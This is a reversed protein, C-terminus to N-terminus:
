RKIRCAPRTSCLRYLTLFQCARLCNNGASELQSCVQAGPFDHDKTLTVSWRNLIPKGDRLTGHPICPFSIYSPAEPVHEPASMTAKFTLSHDLITSTSYAPRRLTAGRIHLTHSKQGPYTLVLFLYIFLPKGPSNISSCLTIRPGNRHEAPSPPFSRTISPTTIPGSPRSHGSSAPNGGVVVCLRTM